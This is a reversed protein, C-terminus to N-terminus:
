VSNIHLLATLPYLGITQPAFNGWTHLPTENLLHSKYAVSILICSQYILTCVSKLQKYM